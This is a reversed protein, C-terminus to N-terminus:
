TCIEAYYQIGCIIFMESNHVVYYDSNYLQSMNVSFVM